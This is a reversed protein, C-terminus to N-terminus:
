EQMDKYTWTKERGTYTSYEQFAVLDGRGEDVHKDIANYMISIEGDPYWCDRYLPDEHSLVTTPKKHWTVTDMLEGYFGERDTISRQYIAEM